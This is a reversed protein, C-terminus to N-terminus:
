NSFYFLTSFRMGKIACAKWSYTVPVFTNGSENPPKPKTSNSTCLKGFYRGPVYQIAKCEADKLCRRQLQDETVGHSMDGKPHTCVHGETCAIGSDPQFFVM